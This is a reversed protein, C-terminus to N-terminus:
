VSGEDAWASTPFIVGIGAKEFVILNGSGSPADTVTYRGVTFRPNTTPFDSLFHEAKSVLGGRIQSLI